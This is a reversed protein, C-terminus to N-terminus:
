EMQEWEDETRGSISIGVNIHTHEQVVNFAEGPYDDQGGVQNVVNVLSEEPPQLKHKGKVNRGVFQPGLKPPYAVLLVVTHIFLHM